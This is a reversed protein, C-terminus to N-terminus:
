FCSEDLAIGELCATAPELGTERELDGVEYGFMVKQRNVRHAFNRIIVIAM